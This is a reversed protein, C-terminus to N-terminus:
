SITGYKITFLSPSTAHSEDIIDDFGQWYLKAGAMTKEGSMVGYVNFRSKFM